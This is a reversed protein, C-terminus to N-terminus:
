GPLSNLIETLSNIQSQLSRIRMWLYILLIFLIAFAVWPVMNNKEEIPPPPIFVPEAVPKGQIELVKRRVLPIWNENIGLKTKEIGTTEIKGKFMTSKLFEVGYFAEIKSEGEDGKIKWRLYAVFCDSLPVGSVKIECDIIFEQQSLFYITQNESCKCTKPMMPIREKVPHTYNVNRTAISNWNDGSEGAYFSPVNPGWKTANLDSNGQSVLYYELFSFSNDSFFYQFTQQTSLPLTLEPQIIPNKLINSSVMAQSLSDAKASILIKQLSLRFGRTEIAFECSFNQVQSVPKTMKLLNELTAYAQDRFIFSKFMFNSSNTIVCLANDFILASTRREIATIESLPISMVTERGFITASNFYSHFCIHTTTLYMRGHLLLKQSLACSFSEIISTSSKLRFKQLVNCESLADEEDIEISEISNHPDKVSAVVPLSKRTYVQMNKFDEIINIRQLFDFCPDVVVSLNENYSDEMTYIHVLSVKLIQLNGAEQNSNEALSSLVLHETHQNSHLMKERIEGSRKQFLSDEPGRKLKEFERLCDEHVLAHDKIIKQVILQLNKSLNGQSSVLTTLPDFAKKSLDKSCDVHVKSIDQLARSFTEWSSKSVEKLFFYEPLALSKAAKELTKAFFEENQITEGIFGKFLKLVKLRDECSTVRTDLKMSLYELTNTKNETEKGGMMDLTVNALGALQDQKVAAQEKRLSVINKLMAMIALIIEHMLQVSDKEFALNNSNLNHLLSELIDNKKHIAEVHENLSNLFNSVERKNANLKEKARQVVTPQYSNAPDNQIKKTNSMSSEYEKKAKEYKVKAKLHAIKSQSLEKLAHTSEETLSKKIEIVTDSIKAISQSISSNLALASRSYVGGLMESFNGYNKVCESLNKSNHTSLKSLNSLLIKGSKQMQKGYNDFSNVVELLFTGLYRIQKKFLELSNSWTEILQQQESFEVKSTSFLENFVNM